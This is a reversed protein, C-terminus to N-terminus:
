RYRASIVTAVAFASAAHGSPFSGGNSITGKYQYWTDRLSGNLPIDSPKLRGAAQKLVLSLIQTDVIAEAALMGTNRAYPSRNALGTVVFAVPTLMIALTSNRGRLPGTKYSQFSTRNHFYPETYPDLFALGVTGTVAALVPKWHRGRAARLPFTFITKQDHLVNSGLRKPSIPNEAVTRAAPASDPLPEPSGPQQAAATGLICALVLIKFNAM